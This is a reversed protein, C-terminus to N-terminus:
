DYNWAGLKRDYKERQEPDSIVECAWGVLKAEEDIREQEEKGMGVLKLKDPHCEIRRERCARKIEASTAQPGIKLITYISPPARQGPAPKAAPERYEEKGPEFNDREPCYTQRIRPNRSRKEPRHQNDPRGHGPSKDLGHARFPKYKHPKGECNDIHCATDLRYALNYRVCSPCFLGEKCPKFGNRANPYLCGDMHYKEEPWWHYQPQNDPKCYKCKFFGHYNELHTELETAQKFVTPDFCYPCIIHDKDLHWILEEKSEHVVIDECHPCAHHNRESHKRLDSATDFSRSVFHLTCTRHAVKIHKRLEEATEFLLPVDGAKCKNCAFAETLSRSQPATSM